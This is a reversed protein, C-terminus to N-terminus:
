SQREDLYGGNHDAACGIRDCIYQGSGESEQTQDM